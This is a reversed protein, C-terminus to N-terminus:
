TLSKTLPLALIPVWTERTRPHHEKQGSQWVRDWSLPCLGTLAAGEPSLPESGAVGEGSGGVAWPTLLGLCSGEGTRLGAQMGRWLGRGIDWRM